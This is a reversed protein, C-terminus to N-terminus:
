SAPLLLCHLALAHAPKRPQNVSQQSAALAPCTPTGVLAGLRVQRRLQEPSCALLQPAATLVHQLQAVPVRAIDALERAVAAVQAASVPPVVPSAPALLVSGVGDV